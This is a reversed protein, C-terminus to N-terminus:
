IEYDYSRQFYQLVLHDRWVEYKLIYWYKSVFPSSIFDEFYQWLLITEIRVHGVREHHWEDIEPNFCRATPERSWRRSSCKFDHLYKWMFSTSVCEFCVPPNWRLGICLEWEIKTKLPTFVIHCIFYSSKFMQSLKLIFRKASVSEGWPPDWVSSGTCIWHLQKM